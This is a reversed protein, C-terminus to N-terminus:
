TRDDAGDEAAGSRCCFDPNRSRHWGIRESKTVVLLIASANAFSLTIM